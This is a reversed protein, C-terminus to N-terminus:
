QNSVGTETFSLITEAPSPLTFVEDHSFSVKVYVDYWLEYWINVATTETHLMRTLGFLKFMGRKTHQRAWSTATTTVSEPDEVLGGIFTNFMQSVSYRMTDSRICGPSLKIGSGGTCNMIQAPPQPLFWGGTVNGVTSPTNQNPIMLGNNGDSEMPADNRGGHANYQLTGKQMCWNGKGVYMSGQLPVHRVNLASERDDVTGDASAAVNQIKLFSDSMIDVRLGSLSLAAGAQTGDASVLYIYKFIDQERAAIRGWLVTALRNAAVGLTDTALVGVDAQRTINTDMDFYEIWIDVANTNSLISSGISTIDRALAKYFLKRIIAQCVVNLILTPRYSSHGIWATLNAGATSVSGSVYDRVGCGSRLFASKDSEYNRSAKGFSGAYSSGAVAGGHKREVFESMATINQLPTPESFRRKKHNPPYNFPVTRKEPTVYMANATGSIFASQSPYTSYAYNIVDPIDAFVEAFEM